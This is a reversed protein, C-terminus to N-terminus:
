ATRGAWDCLQDDIAKFDLRIHNRCSVEAGHRCYERPCDDTRDDDDETHQFEHLADAIEEDTEYGLGYYNDVGRVGRDFDIVTYSVTRQLNFPQTLIVFRGSKTVARVTWATKTREFRVKQGVALAPRPEIAIAPERM